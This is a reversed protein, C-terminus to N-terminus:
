ERSFSLRRTALIAAKEVESSRRAARRWPAVLRLAAADEEGVLAALRRAALHRVECFPRASVFSLALAGFYARGAVSRGRLFQGVRDWELPPRPSVRTFM